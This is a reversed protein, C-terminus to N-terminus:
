DELDIVLPALSKKIEEREARKYRGQAAKKIIPFMEKHISTRIVTHFLTLFDDEYFGHTIPYSYEYTIESDDQNYNYAGYVFRRNADAIAKCLLYEYTKEGVFPLTARIRIRKPMDEVFVGVRISTNDITFGLEYQILTNSISRKAINRWGQSAFAKEVADTTEAMFKASEESFEESNEGIISEMHKQLVQALVQEAEDDDAPNHMAERAKLLQDLLERITDNANPDTQIQGILEDLKTM